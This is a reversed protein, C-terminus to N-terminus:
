QQLDFLYLYVSTGPVRFERKIKGNM